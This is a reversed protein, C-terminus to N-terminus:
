VRGNAGEVSGGTRHGKLITDCRPYVGHTGTSASTIGEAGGPPSRAIESLSHQPCLDVAAQWLEEPVTTRKERTERWQQFRNRVETLTTPRTPTYEITM